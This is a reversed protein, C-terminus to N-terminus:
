SFIIKLSEKLLTLAAAKNRKGALRPGVASLKLGELLLEVEQSLLRFIQQQTFLKVSRIITFNIIILDIADTCHAHFLNFSM